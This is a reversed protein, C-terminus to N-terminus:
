VNMPGLELGRMAYNQRHPLIPEAWLLVRNIITVDGCCPKTDIKKGMVTM